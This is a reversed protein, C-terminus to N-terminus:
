YGKGKGEPVLRVFDQLAKNSRKVLDKLDAATIKEIKSPAVKHRTVLIYQDKGDPDDSIIPNHAIINRQKAVYSLEDFMSGLDPELVKTRELLRRLIEIRKAFPMKAIAASLLSDTGLSNIANNTLLELAGCHHIIKGVLEPISDLM